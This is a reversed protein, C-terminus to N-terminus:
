LRNWVIIGSTKFDSIEEIVGGVIAYYIGNDTYTHTLANDGTHDGYVDYDVEGDGWYVNVMKDSKFGVTLKQSTSSLKQHRVVKKVPDPEKLKLTFTGIMLDDHWTKSPSIGDECYVEYVLPKTPHISIMLRQTGDKRFIEYLKNVRETFDMKGSAKLWCNLTIEREDYRKDTLDIVKGHYDAWDNSTPSKLKPLDLVGSSSEVRIGFDRLNTGDIYYELQSINNLEEEIEADTLAINYIKAEDLEAYGYETGYIDQILAIGTLTDDLTIKGVSQLDLMISVNNGNKRIVLFEWSDAPINVWLVQSGEMNATNCFVGIRKGTFGDPYDKSKVWALITFNEALTLIDAEITAAGTGEFDICNGQKGAVFNAGGSITADHRNQAYDYATKSGAAEDFPLSLILNQESTAMTM